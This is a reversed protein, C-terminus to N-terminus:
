KGSGAFLFEWSTDLYLWRQTSFWSTELGPIHLLTHGSECILETGNWALFNQSSYGVQAPHAVRRLCIPCRQRQDLVAWRFGLICITFSIFLHIMVSAPSYITTFSYTLDLSAFYAIPLLLAIKVGLFGWRCLKKSWSQPHASFSYEGMSVSVTGPLALIALFVAFLFVAVPTSSGPDLSIGLLSDETDDSNYSTIQVSSTWLESQGLSTLHAVVYGASGHAFSSDPELLWADVKGPLRWSGEPAVGAIRAKCSGVRMISGVIQPDGGFERKWASYSLIVSTLDRDARGVPAAFQVPVNLMAFLNSSARAVEWTKSAHPTVSVPELAVRYFALRDFYKQRSATWVRYQAPTIAPLSHGNFDTDQILVLGPYVQYESLSREIRVRPSLLAVAYCACSVAALILICQAASGRMETFPSRDQWGRKRLFFADQFAGLCFEVVEREGHWSFGGAPTREQCVQWLEAQWERCWEGRPESPVLLAACGLLSLHFVRFISEAPPTM